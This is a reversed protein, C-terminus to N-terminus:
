LTSTKSYFNLIVVGTVILLIGIVAPRDLPSKFVWVSVLTTLIIGLGGWIAYAVGLPIFKLSLSFFYFAAGYAVLVIASPIPRTFQHSANLFSSGVVELVIALALFLYKM